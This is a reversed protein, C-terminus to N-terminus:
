ATREMMGLLRLMETYQVARKTDFWDFFLTEEDGNPSVLTIAPSIGKCLELHVIFGRENEFQYHEARPHSVSKKSNM